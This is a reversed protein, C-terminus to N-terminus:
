KISCTSVGCSDPVADADVTIEGREYDTEIQAKTSDIDTHSM